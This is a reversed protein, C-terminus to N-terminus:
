PTRPLVSPLPIIAITAIKIVEFPPFHLIGGKKYLNQM